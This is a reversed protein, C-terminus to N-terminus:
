PGSAPPNIPLGVHCVWVISVGDALRGEGADVLARCFVPRHDGGVVGVVQGAEGVAYQVGEGPQALAVLGVLDGPQLVAQLARGPGLTGAGVFLHDDGGQDVVDAVFQRKEIVGGESGRDQAGEDALLGVPDDLM